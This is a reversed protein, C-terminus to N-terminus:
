KNMRVHLYLMKGGKEMPHQWPSFQLKGCLWNTRPQKKKKTTTKKILCFLVASIWVFSVIGGEEVQAAAWVDVRFDLRMRRAAWWYINKKVKRDKTM